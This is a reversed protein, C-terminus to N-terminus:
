RLGWEQLRRDLHRLHIRPHNLTADPLGSAHLLDPLARLREADERLRTLAAEPDLLPKLSACVLRWDVDGAVEMRGPWKITRTIGEDDMVTPALDYIPALQVRSDTRIISLNRGHNDSNGLIKNLLDRRLYDAVLEPIASEQGTARWLEALIGLVETHRMGQGHGVLGALSYISEVALREVGTPTVRRDFRQMWLSPRPGEELALGEAPLTDIGLQQLARYYHFESRLIDGDNQTAPNRPFKVWWHRAASADDLLADPYLLGERNQALLLKPAEGGISATGGFAAGQEHAYELFRNDLAIVQDRSFGLAPRRRLGALSEKIRLNGIPAATSRSLLFLEVGMGDPREHGIHRLLFRGTAAAPALDYLFAPAREERWSEWGLPIQASVSRALPSAVAELNDVLYQQVYGFRCPSAFGEEPRDFTLTM